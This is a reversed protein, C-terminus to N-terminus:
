IHADLVNPQNQLYPSVMGKRAGLFHPAHDRSSIFTFHASKKICGSVALSLAKTSIQPAFKTDFFLPLPNVGLSYSNM